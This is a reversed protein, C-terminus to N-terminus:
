REGGEGRPSRGDSPPKATSPELWGRSVLEKRVRARARTARVAVNGRTIGLREAIERESLGELDRLIFVERLTDPLTELVAYLVEARKRQLAVRDPRESEASVDDLVRRRDELRAHATETNREWRWHRRVVNIAVGHLWTSLKSRGEFDPLAVLAKAFTEQTLDEAVAPDGTLYRVHRYIPDFLEQYLRAWAQMDGRKAREVLLSTRDVVPADEREAAPADPISSTSHLRM